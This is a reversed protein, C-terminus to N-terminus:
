GGRRKSSIFKIKGKIEDLAKIQLDIASLYEDFLGKAKKYFDAPFEYNKNLEKFKNYLSPVVKRKSIALRIKSYIEHNKREATMLALRYKDIVPEYDWDKGIPEEPSAYPSNVTSLWSIFEGLEEHLQDIKQLSAKRKLEKWSERAM